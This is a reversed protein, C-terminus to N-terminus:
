AFGDQSAQWFRLPLEEMGEPIAIRRERAKDHLVQELRLPGRHDIALTRRGNVYRILLDAM